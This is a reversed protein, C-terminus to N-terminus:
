EKTDDEVITFEEVIEPDYEEAGVPPKEKKHAKIKKVLIPVTYMALAGALAGGAFGAVFKNNCKSAAEAIEEAPVLGAVEEPIAKAKMELNEM